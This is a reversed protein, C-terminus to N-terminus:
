ASGVLALRRREILLRAQQFTELLIMVRRGDDLEREVRGMWGSFPGTEIAVRDGALLPRRDLPVFGAADVRERIRQIIEPDLPLPLSGASVVRLVGPAFRVADLSVAPSFEAFCYGPFLPRIVLRPVGVVIEERRIRPLFVTLDMREVHAAALSERHPKTQLAYWAKHPWGNM